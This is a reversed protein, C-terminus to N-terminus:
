DDEDTANAEDDVLGFQSGGGMRVARQQVYKADPRLSAYMEPIVVAPAGVAGSVSRSVAQSKMYCLQRCAMRWVFRPKMGLNSGSPNCYMYFATSAKLLAWQSMEGGLCLLDVTKSSRGSGLAEERPLIDQWLKYIRAVREPYGSTDDRAQMQADWKGAVEAIDERLSAVLTRVSKSQSQSEFDKYYYALDSDWQQPRDTGAKKDLKLAAHFLKLETEITPKAVEFKLHDIIHTVKSGSPLVDKKYQPEPPIRRPLRKERLRRFDDATFKIGQKAQDVLNSLLTSLVVAADDQVNNRDYCLREKYITCAGLMSKSLNFEFCKKMMDAVASELPKDYQAQRHRYIGHFSEEDKSIWESLDPQEPVAANEFNDVIRSDWCVWALDGDYDGGSLKDALPINGKSSFVVVDTLDALQPKFVAQVKQIDSVFHAPSRAVLVPGQVMTKAWDDDAVFATSFGIHVENEELIGEFDVVMYLYASRGVTINLKRALTECKRKQMNYAIEALFKNSRSDFGADLMTNMVEEDEEPSGGQYPVHGHIVRDHRHASNEHCWQRFQPPSQLAKKQGDLEKRLNLKLLDGIARRMAEKSTARDEIVPLFQLNFGAPRPLSAINHIELTRDYVDAASWDMEWKRQSPYTEIWVDESSSPVTTDIIWMGKASGLRAQVARPTASLGLYERIKRAVAPSMKAIGDNMVKGAPSIIDTDHHRMLSPKFVM